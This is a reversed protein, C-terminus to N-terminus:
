KKHEILLKKHQKDSSDCLPHKGGKLPCFMCGMRDGLTFKIKPFYKEIHIMKISKALKELSHKIEDRSSNIEVTQINGPYSNPDKKKRLRNLVVYSCDVNDLDINNKRSWFFKYFRMQCLFIEDKKKKDVDWDEGSTKWDLINYRKTIKNQLVLDIFGKFFYKSFINEYLAEEVSVLDYEDLIKNLDLFKLIQEGQNLFHHLSFKYDNTERMNDMMDKSFTAKFYEIRKEISLNDKLSLEITSHIANGFYLHISPPQQLLGLRKELLHRHGCQNFLSFESFSIHIRNTNEKKLIEYSENKDIVKEEIM